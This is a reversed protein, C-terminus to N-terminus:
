HLSVPQDTQPSHAVTCAHPYVGCEFLQDAIIHFLIYTPIIKDDNM